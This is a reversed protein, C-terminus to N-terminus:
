AEATKCSARSRRQISSGKQLTRAKYGPGPREGALQREVKDAVGPRCLVISGRGSDDLARDARM